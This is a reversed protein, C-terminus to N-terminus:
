LFLNLIETGTTVASMFILKNEKTTSVDYMYEMESIFSRLIDIHSVPEIGTIHPPLKSVEEIIRNLIENVAWNSYCFLKFLNNQHIDPLAFHTDAYNQITQIVYAENM